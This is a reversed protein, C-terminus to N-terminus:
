GRGSAVGARRFLRGPAPADLVGAVCLLSWLLALSASVVPLGLEAELGDVAHFTALDTGLTALADLDRGGFERRVLAAHDDLRRTVVQEPTYPVDVQHVVTIGFRAFWAPVLAAVAPFYPSFVGIRRAGLYGLAYVLSEGAPLLPVGDTLAELAAHWGPPQLLSTTMCAYGYADMKGRLGAIAGPARALMSASHAPTPGGSSVLRAGHASVGDPLVRYWEPELVTNNAPLLVGLRGQWGYM